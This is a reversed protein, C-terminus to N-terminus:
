EHTQHTQTHSDASVGRQDAVIHTTSASMTCDLLAYALHFRPLTVFARRAPPPSRTTHPTRSQESQATKRVPDPQRRRQDVGRDRSGAGIGSPPGSRHGAGLLAAGFGTDAVEGVQHVQRAPRRPRPQDDSAFGLMPARLAAQEVALVEAQQPNAVSAAPLAGLM